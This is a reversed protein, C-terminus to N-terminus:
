PITNETEDEKAEKKNKDLVTVTKNACSLFYRSDNAEVIFLFVNNDIPLRDVIKIESSYKKTKYFKTLRMTVVLIGLLAILTLIIQVYYTIPIGSSNTLM